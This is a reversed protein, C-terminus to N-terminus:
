KLANEVRFGIDTIGELNNVGEVSGNERMAHQINVQYEGEENFIFPEDFGKYWLKNEKIDSFGSGLLEGNPKAMRYELTDRLAKGNPYNLEVILFLNNFKYDNTNRVNVFLNYSNTTDPAEISFNAITDKNWQNPVSKYVDYVANSDCSFNLLCILFLVISIPKKQM